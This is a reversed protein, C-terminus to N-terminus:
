TEHTLLRLVWPSVGSIDEPLLEVSLHPSSTWILPVPNKTHTKLSSDEINGHDSTIIVMTKRVDVEDLVTRVFGSLTELHQGIAAADGGHGLVDTLFHEYLTFDHKEAIKVLVIGAQEHTFIPVDYGRARLHHNTFDHYLAEGQAIQQVSRFPEGCAKFAHSTVSLRSTPQIDEPHRYANAFTVKFGRKKLRLFVSRRKLIEILRSSPFGQLHRGLVKPANVGSLLATQGTASQPLGEVGLCADLARWGLGLRSPPLSATPWLDPFHALPNLEPRSKGIGLGDVFIMLIRPRGRFKSASGISQDIPKMM